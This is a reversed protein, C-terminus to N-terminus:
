RRSSDHAGSVTPSSDTGGAYAPHILCEVLVNVSPGVRKRCTTSVEAALIIRLPLKGFGAYRTSAYLRPHLSASGWSLLPLFVSRAFRAIACFGPSVLSSDSDGV